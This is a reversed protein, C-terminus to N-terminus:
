APYVDIETAKLAVWVPAGVALQLEDYAALTIEAVIRQDHTLVRVRTVGGRLDVDEVIGDWVNRASGEPRARHVSVARPHFAAFVAGDHPSSVVFVLGDTIRVGDAGAHGRFLNLGAVDAAFGSRPRSTVDLATGEQVVHGSELILVRDALALADVPEHTVIVAIGAFADLHARLDRRIEGRTTVDLAALPEDLLLLRPEVALARALAVRQQQGGSLEAPRRRELGGLGVRGLWEAARGRAVARSAGRRRLGYAVNDQASLHPFLLYDQFVVGVSRREPVLDDWRVGDVVITGRDLPALGALARLLTTKGAGNPGLIALREGNAVTLTVDLDMAGVHLQVEAALGNM